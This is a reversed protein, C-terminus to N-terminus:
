KDKRKNKKKIGLESDRVVSETDNNLGPMEGDRAVSETDNGANFLSQKIRKRLITKRAKKTDM